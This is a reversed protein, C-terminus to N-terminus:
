KSPKRKKGHKMDKEFVSLMKAVAFVIDNSCSIAIGKGFAKGGVTLSAVSATVALASLLVTDGSSFLRAVIVATTSGSVIGCIDGVVDNCVNSVREANRILRIGRSAGRVKQAAMSHFPAEDAATVATGIVDFLIGILVIVLLVLLAVALPSDNISVESIFQIVFSLSFTLLTSLLAWKVYKKRQQGGKGNTETRSSRGADM